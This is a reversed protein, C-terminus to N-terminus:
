LNFYKNPLGLENLYIKYLGLKGNYNGSSIKILGEMDIISEIIEKMSKKMADMSLANFVIEPVSKVEPPIKSVDRALRNKLTPCYLHNTSPGIEPFNTETKSGASCVGFISSVDDIKEIVSVAKRGIKIGAKISDCFLWLNGGMIGEIYSIEQQILFDHGMMIPISIFQKNYKEVIIEYGDGCHGVNDMMDFKSKLNEPYADFVATTPIVLIGQRIRRGLYKYLKSKATKDTGTVWLQVIVGKRGDVTEKESLWKVIGGEAHGFVTSPLATFNCMAKNLFVDDEATIMIQVTLGKFAECFTDDIM